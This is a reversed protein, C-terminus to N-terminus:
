VWLTGTIGEHVAHQIVAVILAGDTMVLRRHFIAATNPEAALRFISIDFQAEEADSAVTM